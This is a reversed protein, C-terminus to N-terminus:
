STQPLPVYRFNLHSLESPPVAPIPKEWYVPRIFGVGKTGPCKYMLAYEWEAHVNPSKASHKSWFLQFVDAKDIADALYAKWDVGPPLDYTDMFINNGIALQALRCAKVV